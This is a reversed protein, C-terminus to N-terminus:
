ATYVEANFGFSRAASAWGMAQWMDNHRFEGFGDVVVRYDGSGSLWAGNAFATTHGERALKLYHVYWGSDRKLTNCQPHVPTRDLAKPHCQLRFPLPREQGRQRTRVLSSRKTVRGKSLARGTRTVYRM